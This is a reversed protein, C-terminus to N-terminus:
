QSRQREASELSTSWEHYLARIRAPPEDTALVIQPLTWRKAFLRFVRAALRGEGARRSASNTRKRQRCSPTRLAVAEVEVTDFRWVGRADAVPHLQDFEM